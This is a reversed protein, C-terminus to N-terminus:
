SAIVIQFSQWSYGFFVNGVNRFLFLGTVVGFQTLKNALSTLLRPKQLAQLVGV